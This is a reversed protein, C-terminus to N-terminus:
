EERKHDPQPRFGHRDGIKGVSSRVTFMNMKGNFIHWQYSDGNKRQKVEHGSRVTEGGYEM